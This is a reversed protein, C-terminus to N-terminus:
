DSAEVYDAIEGVRAKLDKVWVGPKLGHILRGLFGLREAVNSRNRLIDERTVKSYITLFESMSAPKSFLYTAHGLQPTEVVVARELDFIYESRFLYLCRARRCLQKYFFADYDPKWTILAVDFDGPMGLHSCLKQLDGREIPVSELSARIQDLAEAFEGFRHHLRRAEAVQEAINSPLAVELRSSLATEWKVLHWAGARHQYKGNQIFPAKVGVKAGLLHKWQNWSSDWFLPLSTQDFLVAIHHRSDRYIAHDKYFTIKRLPAQFQKFNQEPRFSLIRSAYFTKGDRSLDGAVLLSGFGGWPFLVPSAPDNRLADYCARLEPQALTNFARELARLDDTPAHATCLELSRLKFALRLEAPSVSPNVRLLEYFSPQCDWARRRDGVDFYDRLTECRLHIAPIGLRPGCVEAAVFLNDRKDKRPQTVYSIEAQFVDRRREEPNTNRIYIQTGTDAVELEVPFLLEDGARIFYALFNSVLIATGDAFVCETKSGKPNTRLVQRRCVNPPPNTRTQVPLSMAARVRADALGNALYTAVPEYTMSRGYGPSSQEVPESQPTRNM